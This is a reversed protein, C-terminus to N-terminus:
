ISCAHTLGALRQVVQMKTSSNNDSILTQPFNAAWCYNSCVAVFIGRRQKNPETTSKKKEGIFKSLDTVLFFFM